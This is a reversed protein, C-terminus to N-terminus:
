EFKLKNRMIKSTTIHFLTKQLNAGYKNAELSTHISSQILKNESDRAFTEFAKNLPIGLKYQNKLKKVFPNLEKYDKELNLINTQNLDRSFKFFQTELKIDRKLSLFTDILPVLWMIIVGTFILSSFLITNERFYYYDIILITVGLIVSLINGIKPKLLFILEKTHRFINKFKKLFTKNLRYQSLLLKSKRNFYDNLDQKNKLNNSLDTLLEKIKKSPTFNSTEELADPLSYGFISTLNLIRYIEISFSRYYHSFLIPKFIEKGKLGSKTLISLHTVLFPYEEDLVRKRKNKLYIPYFIFTLLALISPIIGLLLSFFLDYKYYIVAGLAVGIFLLLFSTFLSISIYSISILRIGSSLLTNHISTSFKPISKLIRESIPEFFLNSIKAYKNIQIYRKKKLKLAQKLQVENINLEKLLHKEKLKKIKDKKPNIEKEIKKIEDLINNLHLLKRREYKESNYTESLNIIQKASEQIKKSM